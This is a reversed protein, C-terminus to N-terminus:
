KCSPQPTSAYSDWERHPKRDSHESNPRKEGFANMLIQSIPVERDYVGRQSEQEGLATLRISSLRLSARCNGHQNIYHLSSSLHSMDEAKPNREAPHQCM